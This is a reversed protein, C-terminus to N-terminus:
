QRVEFQAQCASRGGAPWVEVRWLGYLSSGVISTGAVPLPPLDIVTWRRGRESYGRARQARRAFRYGKMKRQRVKSDEPEIPVAVKQYLHGNPNFIRLELATPLPHRRTPPSFVAQFTVDLVQTASFSSGRTVPTSGVFVRACGGDSAEVPPSAGLWGLGIGVLAWRVM